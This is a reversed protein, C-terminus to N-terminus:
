ARPAARRGRRGVTVRQLGARIGLCTVRAGFSAWIATAAVPALLRAPIGRHHKRHYLWMAQHFRYLSRIPVQRSSAGRAHEVGASAEYWITWGADGIRACLDLDEGYMFFDEDFGGVADWAARRVLLASGSGSEMPGPSDLDAVNYPRRGWTSGRQTLGLLRLASASMTPLNRRAAPELDGDPRVIRPGVVGRRPDTDLAERLRAVSRALVASDPNLLLVDHGPATAAGCNCAAGFGINRPLAIVEPRAPHARARDVTADRSANDVVVIRDHVLDMERAIASLCADVCTESLYTVIIVVIPGPADSPRADGCPSPMM